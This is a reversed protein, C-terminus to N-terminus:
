KKGEKEKKEKEYHTHGRREALLRVIIYFAVFIIFGILFLGGGLLLNEPIGFTAM